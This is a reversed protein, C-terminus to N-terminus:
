PNQVGGQFNVMWQVGFQDTLEGFLEAWETQRLPMAVNGRFALAQFLSKAEEATDPELTIYFDNGRRLEQPFADVVDTAMLVTNAGIPLAINAIKDLDAEPIGMPNGPLDRFRVLGTFAGGFVSRYFIFAAETSGPLNLYPNVAKM